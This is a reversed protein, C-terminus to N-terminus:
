VAYSEFFKEYQSQTLKKKSNHILANLSIKIGGVDAINQAAERRVDDNKDDLKGFDAYIFHGSKTKGTVSKAKAQQSQLNSVAEKIDKDNMM